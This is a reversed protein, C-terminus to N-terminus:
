GDREDRRCHRARVRVRGRRGLLDADLFTLDGTPMYGCCQLVILRLGPQTQGEGQKTYLYQRNKTCPHGLM